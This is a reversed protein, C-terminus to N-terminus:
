VRFPHVSFLVGASPGVEECAQEARAISSGPVLPFIGRPRTGSVTVTVNQLWGPFGRAGFWAVLRIHAVYRSLEYQPLRLFTIVRRDRRARLSATDRFALVLFATASFGITTTSSRCM